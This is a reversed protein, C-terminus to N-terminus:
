ALLLLGSCLILVAIWILDFNIWAARLRALGLWQYVILSVATMTALMAASHLALAAAAIALSHSAALRGSLASGACLPLVAPVLMLGAGHAASMLFSWLALGLLGTQMGVRLRQRHGRILQWLAWGLLIAAAIRRLPALDLMLGLVLMGSLVVAVAAAHGLAIPLWSLLVFRRSQRQLGLAVAFLWGMAPNAGHFFGLAAVALWLPLRAADM